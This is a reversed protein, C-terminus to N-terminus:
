AAKLGVKYMRLHVHLSQNVQQTTESQRPAESYEAASTAQHYLQVDSQEEPGAM